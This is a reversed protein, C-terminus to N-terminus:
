LYERLIRARSPHRLRRLAQLEIQRIRELTL